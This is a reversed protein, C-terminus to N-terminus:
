GALLVRAHQALATPVHEDWYDWTHDGPHEAYHHEIGLTDLHAHFSRNHEILRDDVGCDLSIVPRDNRRALTEAHRYPDADAVDEILAPGFNPSPV